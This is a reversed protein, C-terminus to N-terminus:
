HGASVPLLVVMLSPSLDLAVTSKPVMTIEPFPIKRPVNAM